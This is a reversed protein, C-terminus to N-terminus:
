PAPRFPKALSEPGMCGVLYFVAGGLLGLLFAPLVAALLYGGLNANSTVSFPILLLWQFSAIIGGILMARRLTPAVEGRLLILTPLGLLLAAPYAGIGAILRFHSFYSAQSPTDFWIWAAYLAAPVAPAVILAPILRWLPPHASM